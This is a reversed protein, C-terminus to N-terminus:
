NKHQKYNISKNLLNIAIDNIEICSLNNSLLKPQILDPHRKSINEIQRYIWTGYMTAFDLKLFSYFNVAIELANNYGYKYITLPIARERIIDGYEEKDNKYSKSKINYIRM